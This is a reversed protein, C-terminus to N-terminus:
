TSVEPRGAELPATMVHIGAMLLSVAARTGPALENRRAVHAPVSFNLPLDPDHDPRLSVQVAQGIPVMQGITGAVPNEREGRSPRDRRHLVIFGDPVAWSVVRGPALEPRLGTELTLGNWDLLTRGPTEEHRVVCGPFVNRVDLLRAVEPSAPRLTVEEPTGEQLTRGHHLVVMRDALMMAETLDHTVLVVPMELRSRLQAIERYLRQRTNRDVASFPEDLLLVAPDRALARALAVRQKQGGSLRAPPRDGLGDLNVLGILERGRSERAEPPLHGMAMMINELATKHPFLAYDQFVMGCRRRHPPVHVGARSDLWTEDDAMITGEAPRLIGAIARLISSKGSGSPGVLGVVEGPRCGFRAELPIPAPQSLTVQLGPM